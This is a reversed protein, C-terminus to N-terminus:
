DNTKNVEIYNIKMIIGDSNYVRYSITEDVNIVAVKPIFILM